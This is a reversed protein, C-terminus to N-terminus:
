SDGLSHPSGVRVGANPANTLVRPCSSLSTSALTGRVRQAEKEKAKDAGEVWFEQGDTQPAGAHRAAPHKPAPPRSGTLSSEAKQQLRPAQSELAWITITITRLRAKDGSILIIFGFSEHAGVAYPAGSVACVHLM